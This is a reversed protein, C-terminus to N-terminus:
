TDIELRSYASVISKQWAPWSHYKRSRIRPSGHQAGRRCTGPLEIGARPPKELNSDRRLQVCGRAAGASPVAAFVLGVHGLCRRYSVGALGVREPLAARAPRRRRSPRKHFATANCFCGKLACAKGALAEVLMGITMRSVFGHPNIIIDPKMGTVPNFPLDEENVLRGISTTCHVGAGQHVAVEIVLLVLNCM